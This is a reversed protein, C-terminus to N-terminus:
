WFRREPRVCDWSQIQGTTGAQGGRGVGSGPGRDHLRGRGGEDAIDLEATLSGTFKGGCEKRRCTAIATMDRHGALFVKLGPFASAPKGAHGAPVGCIKTEQAAEREASWLEAPTEGQIAVCLKGLRVRPVAPAPASDVTNSEIRAMATMQRM